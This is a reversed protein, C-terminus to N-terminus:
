RAPRWELIERASYATYEVMGDYEGGESASCGKILGHFDLDAPLDPDILALRQGTADPGAQSVPIKVTAVYKKNLWHESSAEQTVATVESGGIFASLM